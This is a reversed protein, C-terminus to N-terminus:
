ASSPLLEEHLQRISEVSEDQSANYTLQEKIFQLRRVAQDLLNGWTAVRLDYKGASIVHGM